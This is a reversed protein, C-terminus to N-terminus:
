KRGMERYAVEVLVALVNATAPDLGSDSRIMIAIEEGTSLPRGTGIFFEAPPVELWDCLRLFTEMDPLKGNEVRSLTSPSVANELEASVSRLGSYGRKTRVMASLKAIDLANKM